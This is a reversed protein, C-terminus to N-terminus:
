YPPHTCIYLYLLPPYIFGAWMAARHYLSREARFALYLSSAFLALAAALVVLASGVAWDRDPWEFVAFPWAGLGAFLFFFPARPPRKISASRMKTLIGRCAAVCAVVVVFTLVAKM